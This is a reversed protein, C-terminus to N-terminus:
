LTHKVGETVNPKDVESSLYLETPIMKHDNKIVFNDLRKSYFEVWSKKLIKRNFFLIVKDFPYNFFKYRISDHGSRLYNFLSSNKLWKILRM